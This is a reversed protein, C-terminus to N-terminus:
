LQNSLIYLNKRPRTFATYRIRNRELVDPNKFIDDEYVICHEYTSGQSKHCTLAYAYSVNAYFRIFAYYERWKKKAMDSGRQRLLAQEKRRAKMEEFRVLESEKLIRIKNTKMKREYVNYSKVTVSYYELTEHKYNKVREAYDVVEFEENTTYLIQKNIVIPKNAIMRESIEVEGPNQGFMMKRISNNFSNVVTNRWALVKVYYSDKKFEPSRFLEEIKQNIKEKQEPDFYRMFFVGENDTNEYVRGRLINNQALLDNRIDTAVKIIPSGEKQRIIELLEKTIIKHEQIVEGQFVPSYSQGVPPIQAPDGLFIFKITNKYQMLKKFMDKDLMSSEDIVVLDYNQIEIMFEEKQKFILKGDDDIEEVIGLLSHITRFSVLNPDFSSEKLLVKVAQNTPATVAINRVTRKRLIYNIFFTALFTKGTGAYGKILFLNQQKNEVFELLSNFIAQQGKNLAGNELDATREKIKELRKKFDLEDKLENILDPNTLMVEKLINIDVDAKKAM